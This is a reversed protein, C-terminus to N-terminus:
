ALVELGKKKVINLLKLAAGDPNKEGSEWQCVASKSVNLYKAFVPQSVKERQRLAAIQKAGMKEVPELCLKDFERMTETKVVGATHLGSMTEHISSLVGSARSGRPKTLISVPPKGKKTVASKNVDRKIKM